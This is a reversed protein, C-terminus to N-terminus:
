KSWVKQFYEQRGSSDHYRQYDSSSKLYYKQHYDEAPWFTTAATVEVVIPGGFRGDKEWHALSAVAARKQAQSHYFIATRYQTGGDPFQEDKQTPNINHWFVGLMKEYTTKAPDFVVEISEAHGTDGQSVQHYTPNPVTGGTYGVMTKVVGPTEDFPKQICWFCGAAFTAKELPRGAPKDAAWGYVALGIALGLVIARNKM